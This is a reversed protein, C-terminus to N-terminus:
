NHLKELWPLINNVYADVQAESSFSGLIYTMDYIMMVRCRGHPKLVRCIGHPSIANQKHYVWVADAFPIQLVNKAAHACAHTPDRFFM